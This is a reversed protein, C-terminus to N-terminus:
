RIFVEIPLWCSRYTLDEKWETNSLYLQIGMLRVFGFKLNVNNQELIYNKLAEFKNPAYNDRNETTGDAEQGGKAEIIWVDGNYGESWFHRSGYNYKLNAHEDFIMLSSKGKLYGMFSSVSMKPPIKVLMHIHDSCAQAEVIEVGKYECLRRLYKGIDARLKAYIAKRRYKPTFVIHYQCNWKTHSLSSTDDNKHPM